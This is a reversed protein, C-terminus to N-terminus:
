SVRGLSWVASILLSSGVITSNEGLYGGLYIDRRSVNVSRFKGFFISRIFEYSVVM